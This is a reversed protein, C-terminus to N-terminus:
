SVDGQLMWLRMQVFGMIYAMNLPDSLGSITLNKNQIAKRILEQTVKYHGTKLIANALTEAHEKCIQRFLDTSIIEKFDDLNSLATQQEQSSSQSKKIADTLNAMQQQYSKEQAELALRHVREQQEFRLDYKDHLSRLKEIMINRMENEQDLLMKTAQQPTIMGQMIQQALTNTPILNTMQTAADTTTTKQNKENIVADTIMEIIPDTGVSIEARQIIEEAKQKQQASSKSTNLEQQLDHLQKEFADKEAQHLAQVQTLSLEHNAQMQAIKDDLEKRFTAQTAAIKKAAQSASEIGDQLKKLAEAGRKPTLQGSELKAIITAIDMDELPTETRPTSPKVTPPLTPKKPQELIVKAKIQAVIFDFDDEEEEDDDYPAGQTEIYRLFQIYSPLRKIFETLDTLPKKQDIFTAVTRKGSQNLFFKARYHDQQTDKLTIDAGNVKFDFTESTKPQITPIKTSSKHEPIKVNLMEQLNEVVFKKWKKFDADEPRIPRKLADKCFEFFERDIDAETVQAIGKKIFTNVVNTGKTDLYLYAPYFENKKDSTDFNFYSSTERTISKGPEKGLEQLKIDLQEQLKRIIYGKTTDYEKSAKEMSLFLVYSRNIDDETITTVDNEIFKKILKHSENKLFQDPLSLKGEKKPETTKPKETPSTSPKSGPLAPNKGEAKENLYKVIATVDAIDPSKNFLKKFAIQVKFATVPQGADKSATIIEDGKEKIFKVVDSEPTQPLQSIPLAPNEGRTKAALYNMITNIDQKNENSLESINFMSKFQSTVKIRFNSPEVTRLDTGQEEIQAIISDGRENIFQIVDSEQSGLIGASYSCLMLASLYIYKKM